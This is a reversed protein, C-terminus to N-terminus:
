AAQKLTVTEFALQVEEVAVQSATASLDPAKFKIPLANQLTWTMAIAGEAFVDIRAQMLCGYRERNAVLDFWTWLDRVSTVGRKLSLTGFSVPGARQVAGFNRGGERIVRPTMTAEIGTAESFAAGCLPGTGLTSPMGAAALSVKFRFPIFPQTM